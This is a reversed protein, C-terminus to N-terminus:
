FKVEEHLNKIDRQLVEIQLTFQQRIRGEVEPERRELQYKIIV